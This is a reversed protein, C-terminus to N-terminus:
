QQKKLHPSSSTNLSFILFSFMKSSNRSTQFHLNNCKSDIIFYDCDFGQDLKILYSTKDHKNFLEIELHKTRIAKSYNFNFHKFRHGIRIYISHEKVLIISTTAVTWLITGTGLYIVYQHALLGISWFSIIFASFILPAPNIFIGKQM